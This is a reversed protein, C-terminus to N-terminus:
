PVAPPKPEVPESPAVSAETSAAESAASTPTPALHAEIRDGLQTLANAVVLDAAANWRAKDEPKARKTPPYQYAYPAIGRGRLVQEDIRIEFAAIVPSAPDAVEGLRYGGRNDDEACGVRDVKNMLDAILGGYAMDMGQRLARASNLHLTAAVLSVKRGALRDGFREMLMRHLLVALDPQIDRTGVRYSGYACNTIMLSESGSKITKPDRLDLFEYVPAAASPTPATLQTPITLGTLAVVCLAACAIRISNRM